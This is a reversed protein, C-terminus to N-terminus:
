LSIDMWTDDRGLAAIIRRWRTELSADVETTATELRCGGREMQPDDVIRWPLQSLGADEASVSRLLAADAPHLHITTQEDLGALSASAERIVSMVIEPNVRIATRVILKSLELSMSLVDSALAHEFDRILQNLAAILQRLQAREAEAQALAEGRGVELGQQYGEQRAQELLAPDSQAAPVTPAKSEKKAVAPGQGFENLKAKRAEGL